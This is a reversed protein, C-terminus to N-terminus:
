QRKGKLVFISHYQYGFRIIKDFLHSMEFDYLDHFNAALYRATAQRADILIVKPRCGASLMKIIDFNVVNKDRINNIRLSPGDVYVLDWTGPFGSNYSSTKPVSSSGTIKVM